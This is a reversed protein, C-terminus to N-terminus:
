FLSENTTGNDPANIFCSVSSLILRGDDGFGNRGIDYFAYSYASRLVRQGFRKM